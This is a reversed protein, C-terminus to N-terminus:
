RKLVRAIAWAKKAADLFSDDIENSPDDWLSAIWEDLAKSKLLDRDDDGIPRDDDEDLVKILWYGGSTEVTEDRIPESLTGLETDPNFAFEDFAPPMTGKTVNGLDGGNEGANALQSLEEALTAFDAGAELRARVDLAEEENGLLIAFAYVEEDSERETVKILWYGVGKPIEEDHILQSVVGVEADFIYETLVSGGQMQLFISEPHWGLDGKEAKSLYDLSYKEVLEAFDDGKELKARIELAQSESELLMAMVHRQEASKPVQAEFYVGLLKEMLLQGRASDRLIDKNPLDHTELLEKIEEDSISVGLKLAGQRVLENQEIDKVAADAHYEAFEPSQIIGRGMLTDVYYAMNFETDNVRIATQHLPRYEGSYWGVMVIVLVVAIISIGIGLIIRQRKKQQQWRSLQHKTIERPPKKAKKKRTM